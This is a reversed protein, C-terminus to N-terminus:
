FHLVVNERMGLRGAFAAADGEDVFRRFTEELLEAFAGAFVDPEHAAAFEGAGEEFVVEDVLKIDADNGDQDAFAEREEGAAEGLAFKREEFVFGEGFAHDGELVGAGAFFGLAFHLHRVFGTRLAASTGKGPVGIERNAHRKTSVSCSPSAQRPLNAGRTPM